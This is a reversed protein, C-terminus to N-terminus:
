AHGEGEGEPVGCVGFLFIRELGAMLEGVGIGRRRLWEPRGAAQVAAILIDVALAPDVGRPVEGAAQAAALIDGYRRMQGARFADIRAFIHPAHKELDELMQVPMRVLVMEASRLVRRFTAAFSGGATMARDVADALEELLESVISDAMAEKSAFHQYLTRKSMGRRRAIEDMTVGRYGRTAFLEAATALIAARVDDAV